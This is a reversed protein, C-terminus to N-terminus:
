IECSETFDIEYRRGECFLIGHTLEIRLICTNIDSFDNHGNDIWDAFVTRMRDAICANEVSGFYGLNVGKGHATFWEGSIAVNPNAEIQKMKDSLRYTLVYFASESYFANVCRVFPINEVTTALAIIADKGFREYLISEIEKNLKEM